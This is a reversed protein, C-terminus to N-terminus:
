QACLEAQHPSVVLLSVTPTRWCPCSTWLPFYVFIFVVLTTTTSTLTQLFATFLFLLEVNREDLKESVKLGFVVILTRLLSSSCIYVFTVGCRRQYHRNKEGERSSLGAYILAFFFFTDRLSLSGDTFWCCLSHNMNPGTKWVDLLQKVVLPAACRSVIRRRGTLLGTSIRQFSPHTTTPTPPPQPNSMFSHTCCIPGRPRDAREATAKFGRVGLESRM